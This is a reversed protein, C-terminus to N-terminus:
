EEGPGASLMRTIAQHVTDPHIYSLYAVVSAVSFVTIPLFYYLGAHFAVGACLLPWQVRRIWLGVTLTYELTITSFAVGICLWHFWEGPFDSGFYLYMLPQELRDGGLFAWRTKDLAGWFYIASLQLGILRVAWVNGWEKPWSLGQAEARRIALWRDVSFSGGCPTFGLVFAVVALFTTHHHGWSEFGMQHGLVFVMYLTVLGTLLSSFRSFLGIVMGTSGLFFAVSLVWHSWVLNRFPLLESAWRAWLILGWLLRLLGVSRTSGHFEVLGMLRGRLRTV